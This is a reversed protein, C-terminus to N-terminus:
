KVRDNFLNQKNSQKIQKNTQYIAYGAIVISVITGICTIIAIFIEIIDKVDM